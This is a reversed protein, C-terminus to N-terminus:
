DFFSWCIGIDFLIRQGPYDPTIFYGPNIWGQNLHGVKLSMKFNNIKFNLFANMLIYEYIRFDKQKFFQQIRPDYRDADYSSKFHWEVGGELRLRNEWLNRHAYYWKGYLHYVPIDYVAKAAGVVQTYVLHHDLHLYRFFQFNWQCGPSIIQTHGKAQTPQQNNSFYIPHKIEMWCIYPYITSFNGPMSWQTGAKIQKVIPKLFNHEWDFYSGKYSQVFLSPHHRQQQLSVYAKHYQYKTKAEYAGQPLYSIHQQFFHKKKDDLHYRICGKYYNEFIKKKEGYQKSYFAQISKGQYGLLYFWPGVDGKIGTEVFYTRLFNQEHIKKEKRGNIIISEYRSPTNLYAEESASLPEVCFIFRQNTCNFIQYFQYQKDFAYQYYIHYHHQLIKQMTNDLHAVVHESFCDKLTKQTTNQIGGLERVHHRTRFFSSLVHHKKNKSQFNSHLHFTYHVINRDGPSFKLGFQKDTLITKFGAGVNWRDFINVTFPIYLSNRGNEGKLWELAAYPSKTNYYCMKKMNPMYWDFVHFGSTKGITKPKQPWINKAATGQNGLDQITYRSKEVISFYHHLNTISPSIPRYNGLHYQLDKQRLWLVTDFHYVQKTEEDLQLFKKEQQDGDMKKQEEEEENDEIINTTQSQALLHLPKSFFCLFFLLRLFYRIM